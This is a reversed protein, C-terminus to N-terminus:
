FEFPGNTRECQPCRSRDVKPDDTYVLGCADCRFIRDESVEREVRRRRLGLRLAILALAALLGLVQLTLLSEPAM